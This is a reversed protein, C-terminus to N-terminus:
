HDDPRLYRDVARDGIKRGHRLGEDVATRFNSGALLQALGSERAAQTFGSFLRLKPTPDDCTSGAPMTTSCTTFSTTDTGLLRKLVDAAAGSQVAHVSDYEPFPPTIVLPTWSPDGATNTNGDIDANQIATIPRWRNYGYKADWSAIVADVLSMDLLAYLRASRWLGLRGRDSVSRAIRNWQLTPSEVWFQAIETQDATRGSPTTTGNGGLGKVENFVTAYSSDTLVPPPGPRFQNPAKLVFPTVAAWGPALVFTTFPATHRYDGPQVGEPYTLDLLPIDSGDGSRLALIRTAAAQGVAVGDTKSPGDPITALAAAYDAEVGAVSVPVCSQFNAPVQAVLAVLVDHAAAAVAAEPSATRPGRPGPVYPRFQRDIANLADHIALHVMAYMRSEHLPDGPVLCAAVAAKATNANWVTVANPAATANVSPSSQGSAITPWIAGLGSAFLLIVAFRKM